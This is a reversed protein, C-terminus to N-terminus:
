LSFALRLFYRRGNQGMQVADFPGAPENNYAWGKAGLAVGYSPHINFLNDAGAFLTWKPSFRYSTYLDTVVRTAYYYKDAVYLNPDADTPVQPNIGLGDEGYGLIQIKGFRTLRAGITFGKYGYESNLSLKNKPASALIFAQERDSLFNQRSEASGALKAPVNIQDITMDQINGAFLLRFRQDNALPRNYDFVIDLGKNTTNVANAFFQALGVNLANMQAALAPDIGPQDAAFQGSLVVRDKIRVWYGDITINLTPTPNWTFGVSANQSEEQKLNPIGAAKTIPSYNPAIKVEAINSGQVTTFTSSFNIQQLSPARFGTSYSGRLNLNRALKYRSALKYNFTAGFDSYNEYRVAGNLLWKNTIDLEADAYVGVTNRNAKVEDSPQYGPFGQSGSAKAANYNKWSAEEGAEITYREYRYEAGLALNFGQGIGDIERSFILNSTNQLFSFGGNDFHTQGAGLSANFTKDGYFHFGNRGTTNSIDWNWGSATAGRIGAAASLDSIRTQIHPNYYFEGDPTEKIIGAVPIMNGQADTPFREPRASFNRSFAFADSSKYNFGGFSYFVTRNNAFPLEMNYQTGGMLLSADGNARRYPNLYMGRPTNVPDTTDLVQRFTKGTTLLDASLNIFGNRKGLGIGYNLGVTASKGDLKSEYEYQGLEKKYATNFRPDHFASVGLNGTLKGTTRKLIINIVGAIADSGYQASAGDRLIEIRDIASAPIANLDTGSNGRGRTGFVSVFSTQHRRKGNILVLTQDPGLGRLTALDVHDAGDSGSQKNYNFSPAVYNLISTVDMRGTPLTNAAVNIVDVPVPTETRVRGARRTGVLVVQSLQEANYDLVIDLSTNEAITIERSGYGASSIQLVDGPAAMITFSGDTNAIVGGTKGKIKISAGNLAQGNQSSSIKGSITKQQAMALTSATLAMVLLLRRM